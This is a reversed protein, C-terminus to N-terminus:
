GLAQKERKSNRFFLIIDAAVMLTNLIYLILVIDRNYLLKHTIGSIYGLLVAFLFYVSKGKTSQSKISKYINIPWSFGFFALMGIEFVSFKM